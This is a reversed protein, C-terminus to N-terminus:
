AVGMPKSHVYRPPDSQRRDLTAMPAASPLQPDSLAIDATMVNPESCSEVKSSPSIEDYVLKQREGQYLTNTDSARRFSPSKRVIHDDIWPKPM